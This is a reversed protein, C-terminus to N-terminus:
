PRQCPLVMEQASAAQKALWLSPPGSQFSAAPANIRPLRAHKCDPAAGTTSAVYRALVSGKRWFGLLVM